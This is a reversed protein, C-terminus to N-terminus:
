FLAIQRDDGIVQAFRLGLLELVPEAVPRLQRELYHEYDIPSRRLALPEPGSSTIVYEVVEGVTGGEELLRRAAVVHPTNATYEELDKRLAKRYVLEADRSGDRVARAEASLYDEVALDEFLRRYLERQANRALDTWDRRVAELGVFEVVPPAVPSSVALTQARLGVYKKAAGESSHRLPPLFLRLYLKEWELELHSRVGWQSEIHRNLQLNLEGVLDQAVSSARIEAGPGREVGTEVFLSDTDGYLVRFGAQEVRDRTWRLLERGFSTIANSIELDFFRCSSAGLVGFFSNMLIKVATSTVEDGAAKARARLPFLAALIQPL